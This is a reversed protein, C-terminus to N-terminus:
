WRGSCKFLLIQRAIINGFKHAYGTRRNISVAYCSLYITNLHVPLNKDASNIYISQEFRINRVLYPTHDGFRHCLVVRCCLDDFFKLNALISNELICRSFVNRSQLVPILCIKALLM